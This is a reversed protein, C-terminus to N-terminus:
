QSFALWIAQASTGEATGLCLILAFFACYGWFFASTIYVNINGRGHKPSPDGLYRETV